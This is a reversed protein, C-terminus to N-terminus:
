GGNVCDSLLPRQQCRTQIGFTSTGGSSQLPGPARPVAQPDLFRFAMCIDVTLLTSKSVSSITLVGLSLPHAHTDAHFSWVFGLHLVIPDLSLLRKLVCDLTLHGLPIIGRISQLLIPKLLIANNNLVFLEGNEQM